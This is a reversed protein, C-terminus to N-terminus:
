EQQNEQKSNAKERRSQAIEIWVKGEWDLPCQNDGIQEKIEKQLKHYSDEYDTWEGEESDYRSWPLSDSSYSGEMGNKRPISLSFGVSGPKKKDQAQAICELIFSDLPVHLCSESDTLKEKYENVFVHGAKHEKLVSLIICLYKMTMNVWKQAVGYTFAYGDKTEGDYEKKLDSCLKAHKEDYDAPDPLNEVFSRIRDSAANKLTIKDAENAVSLVHSSSDRYERSIAANIIDEASSRLTIGFYSFLLFNLANEYEM